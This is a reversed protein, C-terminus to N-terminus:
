AVEECPLYVSASAAREKRGKAPKNLTCIDFLNQVSVEGIGTAEGSTGVGARRALMAFVGLALVPCLLYRTFM